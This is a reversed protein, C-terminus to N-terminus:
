LHSLLPESLSHLKGLSLVALHDLQIVLTYKARRYTSPPRVSSAEVLRGTGGQAGVGLLLNNSAQVSYNMSANRHVSGFAQAILFAIPRQELRFM